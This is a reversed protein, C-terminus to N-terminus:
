AHRARLGAHTGALRGLGLAALLGNGSSYGAGGNQGSIGAAVGGGAYLGEIPTGDTRLVRADADVRVGGQTHFLAPQSRVACLPRGLPGYGFDTRGFEDEADGRAAAASADLTARLTSPECGIAEALGDPTEAQRVGNM